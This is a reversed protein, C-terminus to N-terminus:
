LTGQARETTLPEPLWESDYVGDPTLAARLRLEADDIHSRDAIQGAVIARWVPIFLQTAAEEIRELWALEIEVEVPLSERDIAM